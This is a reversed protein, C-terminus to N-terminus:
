VVSKRDQPADRLTACDGLAFVEPHSVSQLTRHVLVFGREDQALASRQLWALDADIAHEDPHSLAAICAPPLQLARLRAPPAGLLEGAGGVSKLADRLTTLPVAPARLLAAWCRRESDEPSM